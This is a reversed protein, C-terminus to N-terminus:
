IRGSPRQNRPLSMRRRIVQRYFGLLRSAVVDPYFQRECYSAAQRGLEAARTPNKLLYIIKAAIDSCDESRHLLGTVGDQLVEPIAGTRAAVTPCGSAMAEVTTLSFTEYRSCVVTVMAQRRLQALAAFPQQGLWEMRGTELAGPIRDRIFDKINWCEGNSAIFGCDPGVFRLRAETVAELVRGFAEIILDGGKHRDFRGIFLIQKSDCNEFRWREAPSIPPTPNPIVEAEPLGLEYFDRVQELVDRSPATVADVDHIARGEERIRRRFAEDQPVGLAVGNLFWPGHLRVCVPVSTAQRVLRAVGFSEEMEFIQIGREAIAQRVTTLLWRSTMHKSASRPAIRYWLGDIARRAVSRSAQAQYTDYISEGPTEEAAQCTVITVNHGMARLTPALTAIYTVIGNPFATLPWGPSYYGVSLFSPVANSPEVLDKWLMYAKHTRRNIVLYTSYVAHYLGYGSLTWLAPSCDFLARPRFRSQAFVASLRM